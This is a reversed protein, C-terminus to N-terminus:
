HAPRVPDPRDGAAGSRAIATPDGGLYGAVVDPHDCVEQPAGVAIPHGLHMALVRDSIALILPIDHEIVLVSADLTSRMGLILRGLAESERQALGASPEDLLIVKPSMAVVCTLEVIRRTGTSLAGVATNRYRTLGMQDLLELARERSRRDSRRAAPWAFASGLANAPSERRVALATVEQVTMTPFMRADQFSRVLGGAARREPSWATVDTGDLLVSGATPAVFGGITEFLTTKGAGNPGILGLIEGEHVDFTVQDLAKLGAFNKSVGTVSLVVPADASPRESRDAGTLMAPHPVRESEGPEDDDSPRDAGHLRVVLGILRERVPRVLQALGGPFYLVLVLWGFTSAALGAAGMDVLAPLGIIYLAGLLSGTAITIGGIAAIAVVTIGTDAPFTDAGVRFQAHGYLAGGLGALVGSVAMAQMKRRTARIAFARAADENDRLAVFARGLGSGAVNVTLWLGLLFVPVAFLYYARGTDLVHGFYIPRGTPRGPGFAWPQHFLWSQSMVAVSLTVATLMLGRIRLSTFALAVSAIGSGVAAALFALSFDLGLLILRYSLLAGLGALAFQGLSLQGILGSTVYVSMGILSFALIATMTAAVNNTLWLGGAALAAVLVGALIRGLNRVGWLRAVPEPLPPWARVALWSGQERERGSRQRSYALLVVLMVLFVLLEVQGGEHGNWLVVSEVVGLAVGTGLALPLNNMRAVVAPLLARLLLGTGLSSPGIGVFGQSPFQLIAAYAALVGAIGWAIWAMRGPSVGALVAAQPNDASARIAIGYRTHRLLLAIGIVLIPTGVLQVSYAPTVVLSGLSFGPIGAPQPYLSGTTIKTNIAQSLATLFAAMGLTAVISMTPPAKRLRRVAVVEVLMGSLAGIAFGLPFVLWYPLHWKVVSMGVAAAAVTGLSGQAFNIIRSSRYALILGIALAGYTLGNIAGQAVPATQIHIASTM